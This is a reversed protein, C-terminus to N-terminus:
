RHCQDCTTFATIDNHCAFCKRDSSHDAVSILGQKQTQFLQTGTSPLRTHCDACVYGRSAHTDHDFTVRGQGGGRYNFTGAYQGVATLCFLGLLLCGLAPGLGKPFRGM